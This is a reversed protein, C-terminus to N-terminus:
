RTMEEQSMRQQKMGTVKIMDPDLKYVTDRTMISSEFLVHIIASPLGSTKTKLTRVLAFTATSLPCSQSQLSVALSDAAKSIVQINSKYLSLVITIKDFAQGLMISVTTKQSLCLDNM